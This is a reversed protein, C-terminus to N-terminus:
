KILKQHINKYMKASTRANLFNKHFWTDQPFSSSTEKVATAPSSISHSRSPHTDLCERRFGTHM